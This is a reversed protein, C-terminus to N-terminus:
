LLYTTINIISEGIELVAVLVVNAGYTLVTIVWIVIKYSKWYVNTYLIELELARGLVYFTLIGTMFTVVGLGSLILPILGDAYRCEDAIM